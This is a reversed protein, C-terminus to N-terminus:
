NLLWAERSLPSAFKFFEKAFLNQTERLWDIEYRKQQRLRSASRVAVYHQIKKCTASSCGVRNQCCVLRITAIALEDKYLQGLRCVSLVEWGDGVDCFFS